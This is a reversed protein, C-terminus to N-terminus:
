RSRWPLGLLILLVGFCIPGAPSYIQYAGATISLGGFVILLAEFLNM